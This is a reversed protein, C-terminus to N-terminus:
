ARTEARPLGVVQVFEAVARVEDESEPTLVIPSHAPNLPKLVIRTHRWEADDAATKESTYVKLTYQGGTHPDSIGSHWVLLKRGQRSGGRPARFLCYSGNPIEPEMSDGLVRAVFMGAEFNRAGDWTVWEKAWEGRDDFGAQEESFRGAAARLSTLPVCTRYHDGKQPTVIRFPLVQAQMAPTAHKELMGRLLTLDRCIEFEWQGWRKANNVAAVWKKAAANKALVRDEAWLEGGRGKIELLVLQGGRMRVVFDPFYQHPNSEYEYPITLGVSRDTAVYCEVADMDEMVEIAEQEWESYLPALNLHSKTLALVRRATRYNVDATSVTPQYSNVVPLLPADDRAAAPLIGDRVRKRLLQAYKELALERRDVGPAFKVKGKQPDVYETVIRLVEPFILHRALVGRKPGGDGREQAGAVLDEVVSQALAFLVQQFRVTKYFEQRDQRVFEIPNPGQSVDYYGRTPALFVATPEHEVIFGELKDVDCRIGSDRLEYTYSEVVPM